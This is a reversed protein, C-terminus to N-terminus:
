YEEYSKQESIVSGFKKNIEDKLKFRQDNEIYVSRALAIFSEEFCKEKEKKRIADEIDWLRKNVVKLKSVEELYGKLEKECLGTLSILEKKIEILKNFDKIEELKIQLISIKDLVEGVSLLCNLSVM